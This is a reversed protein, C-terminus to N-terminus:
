VADRHANRNDGDTCEYLSLDGEPTGWPPTEHEKIIGVYFEGRQLGRGLCEQYVEVDTAGFAVRQDGNYAIWQRKKSKLTLLEPLDRWFAKQSRLMLPAIPACLESRPFHDLVPRAREFLEARLLVYATNTRPDLARPSQEGSSEIAKSQEPTLHIPTMAAESITQM